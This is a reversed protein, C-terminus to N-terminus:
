GQELRAEFNTLSENSLNDWTQFENRLAINDKISDLYFYVAREVIEEKAFGYLFAVKEVQKELTPALRLNM